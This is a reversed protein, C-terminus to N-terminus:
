RVLASCLPLIEERLRSSISQRVSGLIGNAQKAALACQQNINLKTDLLFVAGNEALNSQLQIAGLTYQHMPNNRGLHPVRCKKTFMMLYRDAWKELRNCERQIAACGELTDTV